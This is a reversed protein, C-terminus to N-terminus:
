WLTTHPLLSVRTFLPFSSNRPLSILQTCCCGHFCIGTQNSTRMVSILKNHNPWLILAYAVSGRERGWREKKREREREREVYVGHCCYTQYWGGVPAVFTTIIWLQITTARVSVPCNDRLSPSMVHFSMRHKNTPPAAAL